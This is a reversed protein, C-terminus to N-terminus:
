FLLDSGESCRKAGEWVPCGMIYVMYVEWVSVNGVAGSPEMISFCGLHRVGKLM